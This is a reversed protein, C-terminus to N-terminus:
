SYVTVVHESFCPSPLIDEFTTASVPVVSTSLSSSQCTDLTMNASWCTGWGDGYDHYVGSTLVSYDYGNSCIYEDLAKSYPKGEVESETGARSAAAWLTMPNFYNSDRHLYKSNQMENNYMDIYDQDRTYISNGWDWGNPYVTWNWNIYQYGKIGSNKLFDFYNPFYTDFTIPDDYYQKSSEGVVVPKNHLGANDMFWSCDDTGDGFSDFAFWDVYSDGPYWDFMDRGPQNSSTGTCWVFAVNDVQDQNFIDVIRRFANQYAVSDYGNWEGDCEYGIRLFIDQGLNKYAQAMRHIANDYSGDSVKILESYNNVPLELGLNMKSGPYLNQLNVIGSSIKYNNRTHANLADYTAYIV